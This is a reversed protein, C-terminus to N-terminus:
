VRVQLQRQEMRQRLLGLAPHDHFLLLSLRAVLRHNPQLLSRSYGFRLGHRIRHRQVASELAVSEGGWQLLVPLPIFYFSTFIMRGM